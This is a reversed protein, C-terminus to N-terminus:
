SDWESRSPTYPADSLRSRSGASLATGAPRHAAGPPGVVGGASSNAASPAAGGGDVALAFFDGARGEGLSGPPASRASTASRLSTAPSAGLPPSAPLRQSTGRVPLLEPLPAARSAGGGETEPPAPSLPAASPLHGSSGSSGGGGGGGGSAAAGGEASRLLKDFRARTLALLLVVPSKATATFDVRYTGAPEVLANVAIVDWAGLTSEVLDKGSALQLTGKLVVYCTDFADGRSAVVSTPRVADPRLPLREGAGGAAGGPGFFEVVESVQVLEEVAAFGFRSKFPKVNALLFAAMARVEQARMGNPGERLGALTTFGRFAPRRMGGPGEGREHDFEDTIKQRMIVELVDELTIVGVVRYTPDGGAALTEVSRVVAFHSRGSMFKQLVSDLLELDDVVTVQARDFHHVVTIVPLCQEATIM